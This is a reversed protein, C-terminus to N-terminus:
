YNAHCGICLERKGEKILRAENNGSHRLHCTMCTLRGDSLLPYEDPITMGPPAIVNIPHSAIEVTSLHCKFCITTNVQKENSLAPHSSIIGNNPESTARAEQVMPVSETKQEVRGLSIAAPQNTTVSIEILDDIRKFGTSFTPTNLVQLNDQTETRFALESLPVFQGQTHQQFTSTCQVSVMTKAPDFNRIERNHKLTYFDDANEVYKNDNFHYHLQCRCPVDTTWSLSARSFLEDHYHALYLLSITPQSEPPLAMPISNFNPCLIESQQKQRNQYWLKIILETDCAGAPLLAVQHTNADFSEALWEIWKKDAPDGGGYDQETPEPITVDTEAPVHCIKCRNHSVPEHVVIEGAANDIIDRHCKLCQESNALASSAVLLCLLAVTLGERMYQISIM